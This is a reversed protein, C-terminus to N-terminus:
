GGIHSMEVKQQSATQLSRLESYRDARGTWITTVQERLAQDSVGGRLPGRLDHGAGAFLCTFLQGDASLRARTCGRCFPQSVSAILGAVVSAAVLAAALRGLAPRGALPKASTTM